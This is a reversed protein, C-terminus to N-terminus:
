NKPASPGPPAQFSQIMHIVVPEYKSFLKEPVVANLRYLDQGVAVTYQMVSEAQTGVRAYRIMVGRGSRSEFSENKFDKAKPQREKLRVLEMDPMADLEAQTLREVLRLHDVFLAPGDNRAFVALSSGGSPLLRWDKTPYELEFRGSPDRFTQYNTKDGMLKKFPNQGAALGSSSLVCVILILSGLRAHGSLTWGHTM